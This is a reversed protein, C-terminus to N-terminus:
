QAVQSVCPSYSGLYGKKFVPPAGGLDLFYRFTLPNGTPLKRYQGAQGTRSYWELNWGNGSADFKEADGFLRFAAWLGDFRLLEDERAGTDELLRAEKTSGGPWKFTMQQGGDGTSKLEQGDIRVRLAKVGESKVARMTYTLAPETAGFRYMAESLQALRNFYNVFGPTLRVAAGSVV